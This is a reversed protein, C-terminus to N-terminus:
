CRLEKLDTNKENSNNITLNRNFTLFQMQYQLNKKEYNHVSAFSKADRLYCKVIEINSYWSCSITYERNITFFCKNTFTSTSISSTTFRVETLTRGHIAHTSLQSIQDTFAWPQFGHFILILRPVPRLWDTLNLWKWLLKQGDERIGQM